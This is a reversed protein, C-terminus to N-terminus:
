VVGNIARNGHDTKELLEEALRQVRSDDALGLRSCAALANGEMSAHVRFRGSTKSIGSVHKTSNLWELVQGAMRVAQPHRQPIGQEVLSVLRWHAGTWKTYPHVGFGGDSRQGSFLAKVVPGKPITKQLTRLQKSGESTDM